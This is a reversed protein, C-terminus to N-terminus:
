KVGVFMRSFLDTQVIAEALLAHGHGNWHTDTVFEFRRGDQIYSNEFVPHMDILLFGRSQAQERMYLRMRGWVSEALQEKQSADYIAERVGDMAIVVREPPLGTAEPLADLFSRVAWRYDDYEQGLAEYPINAAWRRENAGLYQLNLKLVSEIKVNTILYMALASHRALRRILTPEYDVRRVLARDDSLREFHHFGPSRGRHILSEDLDNSIHLFVFADPKYKDRAYAAWVLYQTLGAGSAAFSYVRGRQGVSKSLRGQVTEKFPVMAAEIYSDGVVALLPRAGDTFYDEDSVFGDNNVRVKNTIPFNWGRSWTSLRNPEFRYVPNTANVAQTRLGENVPLLRLFIEASAVFGLFGLTASLVVYLIRRSTPIAALTEESKAFDPRM